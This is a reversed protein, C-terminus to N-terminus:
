DTKDLPLTGAPSRRPHTSGTGFTLLLLKQSLRQLRFQPDILRAIHVLLFGVLNGLLHHPHRLTTAPSGQAPHDM